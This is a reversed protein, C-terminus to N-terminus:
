DFRHRTTFLTKNNHLVTVVAVGVTVSDDNHELEAVTETITHRRAYREVETINDASFEQYHIHGYDADLYEIIATFM